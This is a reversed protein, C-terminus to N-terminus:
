KLESSVQAEKVVPGKCLNSSDFGARGQASQQRMIHPGVTRQVSIALKSPFFSDDWPTVLRERVGRTLLFAPTCVLGALEKSM